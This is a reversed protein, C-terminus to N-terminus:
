SKLKWTPPGSVARHKRSCVQDEIPFPIYRHLVVAGCVVSRRIKWDGVNPREGIRQNWKKIGGCVLRGHFGFESCNWEVEHGPVVCDEPDVDKDGATRRRALVPAGIGYGAILSYELAPNTHLHPSKSQRDLWGELGTEIATACCHGTNVLLKQSVPDHRVGDIRCIFLPEDIAIAEISRVEAEEAPNGIALAIM